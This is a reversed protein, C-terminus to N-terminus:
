FVNRITKKFHDEGTYGDIVSWGTHLSWLFGCLQKIGDYDQGVAQERTRRLFQSLQRLKAFGGNEINVSTLTVCVDLETQFRKLALMVRTFRDHDTQLNNAVAHWRNQSDSFEVKFYQKFSQQNKLEKVFDSDWSQGCAWVYEPILEDFLEDYQNQLYRNIEIKKRKEPLWSILLYIFLSILVALGADFVAQKLERDSWGTVSWGIAAVSIVFAILVLFKTLRLYLAM